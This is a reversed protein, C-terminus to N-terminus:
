RSRASHFGSARLRRKSGAPKRVYPYWCHDSNYRRREPPRTWENISGGLLTFDASNLTAEEVGRFTVVDLSARCNSVVIRMPAVSKVGPINAITRTYDQPLQSTFPCFRNERYVVLRNDSASKETAAAVGSRMAQVACFLFM